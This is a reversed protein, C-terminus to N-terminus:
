PMLGGGNIHLTQGTIYGAAPSLLFLIPGVVDEAVALRGLPITKVYGEVDIRVPGSAGGHAIGGRLFPTDVASPAVANVRILPAEEAALLKTLAIIGAKAVGYAGFGPAPKVGLGSAMTVIAPASGRRLLPLLARAILYTTDLNGELVGRWGDLGTEALSSRPRAFGALAVLGELAGHRRALEAAVADVHDPTALDVVHVEVGPPPPHEGLVHPLDLAIVHDGNALLAAVTARGIGGAAGTVVIRRGSTTENSAQM